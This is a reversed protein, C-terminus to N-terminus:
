QYSQFFSPETPAEGERLYTGEVLVLGSSSAPAIIAVGLFPDIPQHISFNRSVDISRIAVSYRRRM